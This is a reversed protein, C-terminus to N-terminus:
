TIPRISEPLPGTLGNKQIDPMGYGNVSHTM